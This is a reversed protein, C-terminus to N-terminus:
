QVKILDTTLSSMDDPLAASLIISQNSIPHIFSLQAAHLAQRSILKLSGGYLDDGLLPHGQHALHVRIQHTRGTQLELEVLSYDKCFQITRYNTLAQKGNNDVVREIISGPKRSIPLNISGAPPNFIGEALALYNRCLSKHVAAFSFYNQIHPMKAILVLGSTDKDIRHVPHYAANLGIQKYHYMIANALTATHVKTTPHVLQGAPKNVVLLYDDEYVIALPLREAAIASSEPLNWIIIDGTKVTALAPNAIKQNNILIIGTTKLKRWLTLSIKESRRLYDKLSSNPTDTIVNIQPM